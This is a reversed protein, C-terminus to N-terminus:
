VEIKNFMYINDFLKLISNAVAKAEPHVGKVLRKEIFDNWGDIDTTYVVSSMCSLPLLDRAYEKPMGNDIMRQYRQYAHLNSIIYDYEQKLHIKNYFDDDDILDELTKKPIQEDPLFWLPKYIDLDYKKQVYRTSQESISFVRHRNFERSLAIPINLELTPRLTYVDIKRHKTHFGNLLNISPNTIIYLINEKIENSLISSNDEICEYKDQYYEVFYRMNTAICVKDNDIQNKLISHKTFEPTDKGYLIITGHELVSLHKNKVLANYFSEYSVNTISDRSNYCVRGCYEIHKKISILDYRRQFHPQISIEKLMIIYLIFFFLIM